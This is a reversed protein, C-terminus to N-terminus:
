GNRKHFDVVFEQLQEWKQGSDDHWSHSMFFDIRETPGVPRSWQYLNGGTLSNLEAAQGSAATSFFLEDKHAVISEWDICRLFSHAHNLMEESSMSNNVMPIRRRDVNGSDSRAVQSLMSMM